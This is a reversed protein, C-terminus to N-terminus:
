SACFVFSGVFFTGNGWWVRLGSFCSLSVGEKVFIELM